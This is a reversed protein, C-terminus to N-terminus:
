KWVKNNVEFKLFKTIEEFHRARLKESTLCNILVSMIKLSKLKNDIYDINIKCEPVEFLGNTIAQTLESRWKNINLDITQVELQKIPLDFFYHM